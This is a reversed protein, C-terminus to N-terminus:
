SHKRETRDRGSRKKCKRKGNQKEKRKEVKRFFSELDFAEADYKM